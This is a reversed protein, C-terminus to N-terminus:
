VPKISLQQSSAEHKRRPTSAANPRMVQIICCHMDIDECCSNGKIEQSIEVDPVSKKCCCLNGM